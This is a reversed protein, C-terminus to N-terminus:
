QWCVQRIDTFRFCNSSSYVRAEQKFNTTQSRPVIRQQPPLSTSGCVCVSGFCHQELIMFTDATQHPWTMLHTNWALTSVKQMISWKWLLWLWSSSLSWLLTKFMRLRATITNWKAVPSLFAQKTLPSTNRASVTWNVLPTRTASHSWQIFTTM